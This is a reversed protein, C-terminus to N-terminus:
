EVGVVGEKGRRYKQCKSCGSHECGECKAGDEFSTAAICTCCVWRVLTDRKFPRPPHPRRSLSYPLWRPRITRRVPRTPPEPSNSMTTTTNTTTIPDGTFVPDVDLAYILAIIDAETAPKTTNSSSM